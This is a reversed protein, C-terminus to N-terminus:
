IGITSEAKCADDLGPSARAQIRRRSQAQLHTRTTYAVVRVRSGEFVDHWRRAKSSMLERKCGVRRRIRQLSGAVTITFCVAHVGRGGAELAAVIKLVACRNDGHGYGHTIVGVWACRGASGGRYRAAHPGGYRCANM